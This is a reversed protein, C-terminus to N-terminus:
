GLRCKEFAVNIDCGHTKDKIGIDEGGVFFPVNSMAAFDADQTADIFSKGTVVYTGYENKLEVSTLQQQHVNAKVVETQM